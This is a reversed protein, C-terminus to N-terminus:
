CIFMAIFFVTCFYECQLMGAFIGVLNLDGMVTEGLSTAAKFMQGNHGALMLFHGGLSELEAM